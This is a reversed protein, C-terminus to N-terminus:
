RFGPLSDSGDAGGAKAIAALHESSKGLESIFPEKEADRNNGNPQLAHNNLGIPRSNQMCRANAFGCSQAVEDTMEEATWENSSSPTKVIEDPKTKVLIPIRLWHGTNAEGHVANFSNGAHQMKYQTNPFRIVIVAYEKGESAMYNLYQTVTRPQASCDVADLKKGKRMHEASTLLERFTIKNSLGMMLTLGINEDVDVHPLHAFQVSAANYTRDTMAQPEIGAFINSNHGIGAAPPELSDPVEFPTSSHQTGLLEVVRQMRASVYRQRKNWQPTNTRM